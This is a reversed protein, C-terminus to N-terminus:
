FKKSIPSFYKYKNNYSFSNKNLKNIGGESNKTSNKSIRSNSYNINYSKNKNKLNVKPSLLNNNLDQKETSSNKENETKNSILDNLIKDKSRSKTIINTKNIWSM